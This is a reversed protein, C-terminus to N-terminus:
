LKQSSKKFAFCFIFNFVFLIIVCNWWYLYYGNPVYSQLIYGLEGNNVYFVISGNKDTRFITVGAQTLKTLTANTPQGYSNDKGVSIVAFEPTTINLFSESTSTNSGHHGVKLVDIDFYSCDYINLEKEVAEGADGVFMFSKEGYELIIIPSYDNTSEYYSKTPTYFFINYLAKEDEIIVGAETFIINETEAKAASIVNDYINTLHTKDTASYEESRAFINPRYVTLVNFKEFVKLAGGVHDEDSHTLIFYDIDEIKNNFVANTIYNTLKIASSQPGADILMNKGDPLEIFIADGQGVDIFHVKFDEEKLIQKIKSTQLSFNIIKELPANIIFSLGLLLCFVTFFIVRIKSFKIIGRKNKKKSEKTM